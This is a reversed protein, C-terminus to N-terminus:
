LAASGVPATTEGSAMLEEFERRDITEHDLLANAVLELKDRNDVLVKKAREYANSVIRKVENDIEEAAQESYDRQEYLERGLFM